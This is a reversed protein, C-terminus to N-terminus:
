LLSLALWISMPTERKHLGHRMMDDPDMLFAEIDEDGHLNDRSTNGRVIGTVIAVIEDTLGPTSYTQDYITADKVDLTLGTEEFTERVAAEEPTEGEDIMGAPRTYVYKGIIPRFERTILERGREDQAIIVVAEPKINGEFVPKNKRTVFTYGNHNVKMMKFRSNDDGYLRTLGSM